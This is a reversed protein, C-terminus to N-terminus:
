SGFSCFKPMQLINFLYIKNLFHKGIKVQLTLNFHIGHGFKFASITPIYVIDKGFCEITLISFNLSAAYKSSKISSTLSM